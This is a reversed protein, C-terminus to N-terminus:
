IKIEKVIGQLVGTGIISNNAEHVKAIVKYYGSPFVTGKAAPVDVKNYDVEYLEVTGNYPCPHNINTYKDLLPKSIKYIYNHFSNSSKKGDLLECGEFSENILYPQWGNFRKFIQVHMFVKNIPKKIIGWAVIIKKTRSVPKIHCTYNSFWEPSADCELRTPILLNNKWAQIENSLVFEIILILIVKSFKM